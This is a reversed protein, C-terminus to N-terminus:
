QSLWAAIEAKAPVRGCAKLEGDVVLGPRVPGCATAARASTLHEPELDLGAESALERVVSELRSCDACGAGLIGVRAGRGIPSTREERGQRSGSEFYRRVRGALKLYLVMLLIQFIPMTAAPVAVMPSFAMSAIAVATGNNKGTSTFVVAMNDAFSLGLAKDLWTLVAITVAIFLANPALLLLVTPWRGIIMDAKSFFILFIIAQMAMLSIAPFLPQLRQYREAGLWRVLAVRTLPGLLMPALLVELITTLLSGTPLPVSYNAAFLSMWAPVAAMALVFSISVAVTALELNGKSLGTYGLAMSSCPVVMVLLFGLALTPDHPIFLHVLAWGLLPAWVFNFALALALGRINRGAKLLGGFRLNVMMPYIIMFVAVTTLTSLDGQHAQSWGAQPRGALVGLGMAAVVYALLWKNLHAQLAKM